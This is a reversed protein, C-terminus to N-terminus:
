PPNPLLCATRTTLVRRARGSHHDVRLNALSAYFALPPNRCANRRTVVFGGYGATAVDQTQAMRGAGSPDFAVRGTRAFLCATLFSQYNGKMRFSPLIPLIILHITDRMCGRVRVYPLCTRFGELGESGARFLRAVKGGVRGSGEAGSPNLIAAWPPPRPTM